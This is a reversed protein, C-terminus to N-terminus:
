NITFEGIKTTGDSKFVPITRPAPRMTAAQGPGAPHTGGALDTRLVYGENGNSAVAAILDPTGSDNRVGYTQGRENM